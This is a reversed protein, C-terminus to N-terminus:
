DFVGLVLLATVAAALFVLTGVASVRRTAAGQDAARAPLGPLRLVAGAAAAAALAVDLYWVAVPFVAWSTMLLAILLYFFTGSLRALVDWRDLLRYRGGNRRARLLTDSASLACVGNLFVGVAYPVLDM